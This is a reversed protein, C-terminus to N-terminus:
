IGLRIGPYVMHDVLNWLFPSVSASCRPDENCEEGPSECEVVDDGVWVERGASVYAMLKMPLHPVIDARNVVRWFERTNVLQAFELNGVRPSGFTTLVADGGGLMWEAYALTAQAAGLSHGVFHVQYGRFQPDAMILSLHDMIHADLYAALFGEHVMSGNVSPPWRTQVAHSNTLVDMIHTTGRFAVIVNPQNIG